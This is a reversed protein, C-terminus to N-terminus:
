SAHVITIKHPDYSCDQLERAIIDERGVLVLETDSSQSWKIAGVVIEHPAHDGGMVDLAIRM